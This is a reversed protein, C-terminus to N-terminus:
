AHVLKTLNIVYQKLWSNIVVVISISIGNLFLFKESNTITPGNLCIDFDLISLKFYDKIRKKQFILSFHNLVKVIKAWLYSM